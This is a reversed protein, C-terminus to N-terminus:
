KKSGTKFAFTFMEYLGLALGVFTGIMPMHAWHFKSEFLRGLFFGGFMLVGVNLSSFSYLAVNQWM